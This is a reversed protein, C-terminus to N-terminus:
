ESVEIEIEENWYAKIKRELAYARNCNWIRDDDVLFGMPCKWCDKYRECIAQKQEDTVLKRQM